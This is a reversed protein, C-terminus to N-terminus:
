KKIKKLAEKYIHRPLYPDGYSKTLCLYGIMKIKQGKKIFSVEYGGVKVRVAVTKKM